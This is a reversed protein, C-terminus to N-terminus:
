WFQPDDFAGVCTCPGAVPQMHESSLAQGLWGEPYQLTYPAAAFAETIQRFGVQAYYGPDGYTFALDVGAQALTTLGHTILRRAVGKGQHGTAVAVPGLVFATRQDDRYSLRSFIICGLMDPGDEAVFVFLDQSPTRNLLERALAGILMGEGAGESAAFVSRFLDSIVDTRSTFESSFQM